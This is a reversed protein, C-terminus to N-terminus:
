KSCEPSRLFWKSDYVFVSVVRIYKTAPRSNMLNVQQHGMKLDLFQPLTKEQTM